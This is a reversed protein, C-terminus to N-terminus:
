WSAGCTGALDAATRDYAYYPLSQNVRFAFSPGYGPATSAEVGPDTVRIWAHGAMTFLKLCYVDGAELTSVPGSKAQLSTPFFDQDPPVRDFDLLDGNGLYAVCPLSP